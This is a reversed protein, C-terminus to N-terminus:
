KKERTFVIFDTPPIKEVGVQRLMTVLQGRHYTAHNIVHMLINGVENKFSEKKLSYYQVVHTFAKDNYQKSVFTTLDASAKQWQELAEELSGNFSKQVWEPREVLNLRQLWMYESSWIHIATKRITPFSSIIEQDHKELSLSRITNIIRSNAWENYRAYQLLMEKM